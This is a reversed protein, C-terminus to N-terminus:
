FTIKVKDVVLADLKDASLKFLRYKSAPCMALLKDKASLTSNNVVAGQKVKKFVMTGSLYIEGNKNNIKIGEIPKGNKTLTSFDGSPLNNEKLTEKFKSILNKKEKKEEKNQPVYAELIEISRAVSNLYKSHLCVSYDAVGGDSSKYNKLTVFTSNTRVNLLQNLLNKSDM